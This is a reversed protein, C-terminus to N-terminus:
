RRPCCRMEVIPWNLCPADDDEVPLRRRRRLRIPNRRVRVVVFFVLVLAVVFAAAEDVEVVDAADLVDEDDDVELRTAEVDAEM